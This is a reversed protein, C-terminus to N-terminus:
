TIQKIIIKILILILGQKLHDDIMPTQIIAIKRLEGPSKENNQSIEVIWYNLHDKSARRNKARGALKYLKQLEKWTCWNCNTDSGDEYEM